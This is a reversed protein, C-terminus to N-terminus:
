DDGVIAIIGEMALATVRQFGKIKGRSVGRMMGRVAFQFRKEDNWRSPPQKASFGKNEGKLSGRMM